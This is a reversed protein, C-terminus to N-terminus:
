QHNDSTFAGLSTNQTLEGLFINNTFVCEAVQFYEFPSKWRSQESHPILTGLKDECFQALFMSVSSTEFSSHQLCSEKILQLNKRQCYSTLSERLRLIGGAEILERM